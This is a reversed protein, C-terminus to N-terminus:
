LCVEGGEYPTCTAAGACPADKGCLPLCRQFVGVPARGRPCTPAAGRDGFLCAAISAADGAYTTFCAPNDLFPVSDCPKGIKADALAACVEPRPAPVDPIDRAEADPLPHFSTTVKNGDWVTDLRRSRAPWRLDVMTVVGRMVAVQVVVAPAKDYGKDRYIVAEGLPAKQVKVGIPPSKDNGRDHCRLTLWEDVIYTECGAASSGPM